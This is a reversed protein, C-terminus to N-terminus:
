LSADGSQESVVRYLRGIIREAEVRSSTEAYVIELTKKFLNVIDDSSNPRNDLTSLIHHSKMVSTLLEGALKKDRCSGNGNVADLSKVLHERQLESIYGYKTVRTAKEFLATLDPSDKVKSREASLYRIKRSLPIGLERIFASLFEDKADSEEFDDRRSNPLLGGGCVHIEGILYNNFRRERFFGSLTDKNGILINGRRLRLGDMDTSASVTGQLSSDGVWGFGLIESRGKLEVFTAKKVSESSGKSLAVIDRYPKYIQEGNVFIRYTRYSRARTVLNKDILKGLGFSPHFPVPAVQSLFSRIAPVNLLQNRGDRMANMEVTFFHDDLSGSYKHHGFMSVDNILSQADISHSPDAILQRLKQCDWTCVSAMDEGQSKTTFRLEDCYGLGGLRGIGRFGRNFTPDKESCGVNLLTNRAKDRPVGVGDDRIRLSKKRGDIVADISARDRLKPLYDIADASNQIYERLCMLPHSYMGASLSDLVYKGFTLKGRPRSRGQQPSL